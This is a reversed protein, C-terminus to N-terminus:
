EIAPHRRDVFQPAGSFTLVTEEQGTSTVPRIYFLGM